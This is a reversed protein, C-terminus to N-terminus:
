KSFLLRCHGAQVLGDFFRTAQEALTPALLNVGLEINRIQAAETLNASSIFIRQGDIIVCKAHFVSQEEDVVSLSRVDYFVQPLSYGEPWNYRVFDDRFGALALSPTPRKKSTQIDLFLRVQLNPFEVMKEAVPQLISRGGYIKYGAILISSTARRFLDQVVVLTDRSDVGIADPGTTVLQLAQEGRIEHNKSEAVLDLMDAQVDASAGKRHLAALAEAAALSKPQSVFRSLAFSPAPVGLRGSRLGNALARLEQATLNLLASLSM